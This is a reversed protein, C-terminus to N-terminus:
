LEEPGLDEDKFMKRQVEISAINNNVVQVARRSQEKVRARAPPLFIHYVVDDNSFIVWIESGFKATPREIITLNSRSDPYLSSWISAFSSYFDWGLVTKTQNIILGALPEADINGEDDLKGNQPNPASAAETTEPEPETQQACAVTASGAFALALAGLKIVPRLM